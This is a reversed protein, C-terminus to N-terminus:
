PRPSDPGGSDPEDALGERAAHGEDVGGFSVLTGNRDLPTRILSPTLLFPTLM